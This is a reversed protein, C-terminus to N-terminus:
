RCENHYELMKLKKDFMAFVDMVSNFKDKIILCLCNNETFAIEFTLGNIFADYDFFDFKDFVEKISLDTGVKLYKELDNWFEENNFKDFAAYCEENTIKDAKLRYNEWFKIDIDYVGQLVIHMLYNFFYNKNNKVLEAWQKIANLSFEISKTDEKDYSLRPLETFNINEKKVVGFEGFDFTVDIMEKIKNGYEVKADAYKMNHKISKRAKIKEVIKQGLCILMLIFLIGALVTVGTIEGKIISEIGMAMIVIWAIIISIILM